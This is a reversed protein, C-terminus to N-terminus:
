ICMNVLCLRVQNHNLDNLLKAQYHFYVCSLVNRENKYRMFESFIWREGVSSYLGKKCTNKKNANKFVADFSM